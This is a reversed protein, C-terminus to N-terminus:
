GHLEVNSIVAIDNWMSTDHWVRYRDMDDFWCVISRRQGVIGQGYAYAVPQNAPGGSPAM